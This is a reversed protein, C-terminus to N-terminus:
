KSSGETALIAQAAASRREYGRGALFAGGIIAALLAGWVFVALWPVGCEDGVAAELEAREREVKRQEDAIDRLMIDQINM